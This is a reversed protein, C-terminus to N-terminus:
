SSISFESDQFNEDTGSLHTGLSDRFFYFVFKRPHHHDPLWIVESVCSHPLTRDALSPPHLFHSVPSTTASVWSRGGECNQGPSAQRPLSLSGSPGRPKTSIQGGDLKM